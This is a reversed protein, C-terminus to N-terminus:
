RLKPSAKMTTRWEDVEAAAELLTRWYDGPPYKTEALKRIERMEELNGQNIAANVLAYDVWSDLFDDPFNARGHKLWYAVAAHNHQNIAVEALRRVALSARGHDQPIMEYNKRAEEYNALKLECEALLFHMDPQDGPSGEALAQRYKSEAAGYKHLAALSEAWLLYAKARLPSQDQLPEISREAYLIAVQFRGEQFEIVGKSLNIRAREETKLNKDHLARDFESQAMGSLGLAWASRAAAVMSETTAIRRPMKEYTSLAQMYEGSSALRQVEIPHQAFLASSNTLMYLLLLIRKVTIM